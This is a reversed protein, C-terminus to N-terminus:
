GACSYTLDTIWLAVIRESFNSAPVSLLMLRKDPTFVFLLSRNGWIFLRGGSQGGGRGGAAQM